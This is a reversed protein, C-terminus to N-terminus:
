KQKLNGAPCCEPLEPSRGTPVLVPKGPGLIPLYFFSLRFINLTSTLILIHLRSLDRITFHKAHFVVSEDGCWVFTRPWAFAAARPRWDAPHHVDDLASKGAGVLDRVVESWLNIFHPLKGLSECACSEIGGSSSTSKTIDQDWTHHFRKEDYQAALSDKVKTANEAGLKWWVVWDLIQRVAVLKTICFLWKFVLTIYLFAISERRELIYANKPKHVRDVVELQINTRTKKLLPFIYSLSLCPVGKGFCFMLNFFFCSLLCVILYCFM